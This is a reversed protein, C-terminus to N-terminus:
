TEEGSQAYVTIGGQRDTRYVQAGAASLRALTEPAPHGYTNQGVSIVVTEPAVAELLAQSTSQKSGHHGAALVEIDPLDYREILKKETARDMDGTILFDGEGASALVSLGLENSGSTGLPPFVTLEANGFPLIAQEAAVEGAVGYQAALALIETQAASNEPTEPVM